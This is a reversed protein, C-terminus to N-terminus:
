LRRVAVGSSFQVWRTTEVYHLNRSDLEYELEETSVTWMSNKLAETKADIEAQTYGNARRFAFYAEKSRDAVRWHATDKQALILVGQPALNRAIWDLAGVREERRMFQLVYLCAMVDAPQPLDAAESLPAITTRVGAYRRELESMMASSTDIAHASLGSAHMAKGLQQEIAAFLNGTSSGIDAVVAGPKLKDAFMEVHLRHVEAYMPISRAAMSDFISAVESDFEFKDPNAPYHTHKEAEYTLAM